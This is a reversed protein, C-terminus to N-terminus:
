KCMGPYSIYDVDLKEIRTVEGGVYMNKPDDVFVGRHHIVIDTLFVHSPESSNFKSGPSGLM